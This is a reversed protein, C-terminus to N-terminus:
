WRGLGKFNRADVHTPKPLDQRPHSFTVVDSQHNAKLHGKEFQHKQVLLIYSKSKM